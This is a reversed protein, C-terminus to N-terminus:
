ELSWLKANGVIFAHSYLLTNAADKIFDEYAGERGNQKRGDEGWLM